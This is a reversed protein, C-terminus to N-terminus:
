YYSHCGKWIVNCNLRNNICFSYINIISIIVFGNLINFNLINIFIGVARCMRGGKSSCVSNVGLECSVLLFLAITTIMRTMIM